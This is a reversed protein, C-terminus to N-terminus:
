LPGHNMSPYGKNCKTCFTTVKMQGSTWAGPGRIEMFQPFDKVRETMQVIKGNCVKGDNVESCFHDNFQHHIIEPM